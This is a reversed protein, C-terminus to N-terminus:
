KVDDNTIYGYLTNKRPSLPLGIDQIIYDFLFNDPAKPYKKGLAIGRENNIFDIETDELPKNDNQDADEKFAGLERVFDEPYKQAFKASTYYHRITNKASNSPMYTMTDYKRDLDGLLGPAKIMNYDILANSLQPINKLTQYKNFDNINRKIQEFDM